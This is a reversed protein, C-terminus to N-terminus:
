MVQLLEMPNSGFHDKLYSYGFPTFHIKAWTVRLMQITRLIRAEGWLPHRLDLLANVVDGVSTILVGCLVIITEVIPRHPLVITAISTFLGVYLVSGSIIAPFIVRLWIYLVSPENVSMLTVGLPSIAWGVLPERRLLIILIHACRFLVIWLVFLVVLGLISIIHIGTLEGPM